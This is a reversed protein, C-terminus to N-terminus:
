REEEKFEDSFPVLISHMNGNLGDLSYIWGDPVRLVAVMGNVATTHEHLKMEYLREAEETM